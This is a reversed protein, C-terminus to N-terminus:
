AVQGYSDVIRKISKYHLLEHRVLRRLVKRVSWAEGGHTTVRSLDSECKLARLRDIASRRSDRLRNEWDNDEKGYPTEPVCGISPLYYYEETDAIHLLIRRITRWSAWTAFRAYPPDWDLVEDTLRGCVHLLDARSYSLLEICTDIEGPTAPRKDPLFLVEDGAVQEVVTVAATRGRVPAGPAGHSALWSRYEELKDPVRGLVAERTPAWTAFGMHELSWAQWGPENGIGEHLWIRLASDVM